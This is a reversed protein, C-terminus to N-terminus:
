AKYAKKKKKAVVICASIIGTVIVILLVVPIVFILYVPPGYVIELTLTNGTLLIKTQPSRDLLDYKYLKVANSVSIVSGNEDLYAMKATKYQRCFAYYLDDLETHVDSQDYFFKVFVNNIVSSSNTLLWMESRADQRHFTYSRYGDIDYQVIQSDEPINYLQGNERHYPTYMEDEASILLLLDVYVANEPINAYDVGCYFSVSPVWAYCVLPMQLLILVSVLILFWKKM